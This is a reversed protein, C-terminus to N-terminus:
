PINLKRYQNPSIKNYRKFVRIFTEPNKYGVKESIDAISMQTFKLFNEGKQLRINTLLESFTYGTISKILKSCYPVSFHYTEALQNLTVTDYHSIIYNILDNEYESKLRYSDSLELTKNHRRTLETLFITLISCIIRDSFEDMNQQEGYMDLIYNRIVLDGGTHFLLYRIKKKSYINEVFFLSLQSKDRVTNMFIDLFTSRRIIINLIISDDDFVEIGHTVNPAMLCLDGTNLTIKKGQFIQTCEGSVVYVIEFFAHSHYFLPNYRPHKLITVNMSSNMYDDEQRFSPVREPHIVTQALKPSDSHRSLFDEVSGRNKRTYYYDRCLCEDPDMKNLESLIMEYDM